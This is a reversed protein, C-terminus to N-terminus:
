MTKTPLKRQKGPQNNIGQLMLIIDVLGSAKQPASIDELIPSGM